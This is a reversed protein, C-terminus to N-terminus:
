EQTFVVSVADIGANLGIVPSIDMVYAPPVGVVESILEAFGAARSEAHAHVVAFRRIGHEQHASRVMDVIKARNRKRSFAKGYLKSEGDEDVSVIPKLNLLKAAFGTLPSVRGGRVMYKLSSVSVLNRSRTASSEAIRAVEAAAEGRGIAEAADLVVLGLSGSLHHSDIVTIAGPRRREDCVREAARLATTYTGSLASSIHVSVISEYHDLLRRYLTLFKSDSPQSTKPYEKTADLVSYFQSPTITFKDLFVSGDIELQLPVVHIRYRDIVSAPLDCSSDTVLATDAVRRYVDEHQRVMDDVKQRTLVGHRRLRFFLESPESAHVHIHVRTGGGAVIASDGDELDGRVVEPDIHEGSILTECCYRYAIDADEPIDAHGTHDDAGLLGAGALDITEPRNTKLFNTFGSIFDVFGKAGADVVGREKLADLQNTTEILSENATKLSSTFLELWNKSRHYRDQVAEAWRRIVTLMTGEVPKSVARYARQVALKVGSAFSTPTIHHEDALAESLGHVFQAFIMGSNGRAYELGAEAFSKLTDGVTEGPRAQDMMAHVTSSLNTGTDGDPVPFVNIADLERRNRVIECGGSRFGHFFQESTLETM